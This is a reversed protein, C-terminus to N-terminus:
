KKQHKLVHELFYIMEASTELDMCGAFIEADFPIDNKLILLDNKFEAKITGIQYSGNKLEAEIAKQRKQREAITNNIHETVM